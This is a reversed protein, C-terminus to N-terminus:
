LWADWAGEQQAACLLEQTRTHLERRVVSAQGRGVSVEFSVGEVVNSGVGASCTRGVGELGGGKQVSRMCGPHSGRWNRQAARAGWRLAGSVRLLWLAM